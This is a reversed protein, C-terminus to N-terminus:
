LFIILIKLFYLYYVLLAESQVSSDTGWIGVYKALHAM